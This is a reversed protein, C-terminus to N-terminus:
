SRYGECPVPKPRISLHLNENKESILFLKEQNNRLNGRLSDRFSELEAERASKEAMQESNRRVFFLFVPDSSLVYPNM